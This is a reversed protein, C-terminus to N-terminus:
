IHFRNDVFSKGAITISSARISQLPRLLGLSILISRGLLALANPCLYKQIRGPKQALGTLSASLPPRRHLLLVVLPSPHTRGRVRFTKRM